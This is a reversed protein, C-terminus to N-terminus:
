SESTEEQQNSSKSPPSYDPDQCLHKANGGDDHYVFTVRTGNGNSEKKQWACSFVLRTEERGISPTLVAGTSGTGLCECLRPIAEGKAPLSDTQTCQNKINQIHCGM